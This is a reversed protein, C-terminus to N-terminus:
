RGPGLPQSGSFGFNLKMLNFDSVNVTHDGNFDARNDYGPQGNGRGFASKLINFDVVSIVNDNNCDGSRLQGMDANIQPASNLTVVGSNALFGAPDTPLSKVVGDPGKVRWNYAGNPLSTSVTFFGSSDTTLGAYNVETTGSKL